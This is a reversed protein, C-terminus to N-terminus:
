NRAMKDSTGHKADPGSRHPSLRLALLLMVGATLCVGILAALMVASGGWNLLRAGLAPGFAGGAGGATGILAIGIAAHRRPLLGALIALLLPAASAVGLVALSLGALSWALGDNAAIALGLGGAALVMCAVFHGRREHRHDSDHGIAVMGVVGAAYPLVALWAPQIDAGDAGWRRLLDPALAALAYGAGILLLNSVALLAVAPDRALTWSIAAAGADADRAAAGHQAEDRELDQEVMQQEFPSLWGADDPQEDLCLWAAVGTLTAPLGQTLLLWQWGQLGGQGHLAQLTYGSLPAAAAAAILAATAFIAYVRARRAAPYWGSLYYIVGPFFGAEFMGLVFRLAYFQFPTRVFAAAASALGWCLLLRPLMKRAGIKQLLLNCPLQFLCYGLFFLGAGWAAAQDGFGLSHRMQSQAYGINVRDLWALAYGLMLLPLLHWSIKRYIADMGAAGRLHLLKAGASM